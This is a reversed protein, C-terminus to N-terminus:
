DEEGDPGTLRPEIIRRSQGLLAAISTGVLGSIFFGRAIPGLVAALYDRLAAGASSEFLARLEQPMLNQLLLGGPIGLIAGGVLVIVSPIMLYKGARSLRSVLSTGGLAGLGAILLASAAVMSWTIRDLGRQTLTGAAEISGAVRLARSKTAGLDVLAASSSTADDPITAVLEALAAQANKASVPDGPSAASSAQPEGVSRAGLAAGYDRAAQGTRQSLASKLPRLDLSVRGGPSRGEVADLVADVGRSATSRIETWPLDKQAAKALAPGDFVLPRGKGDLSITGKMTAPVDSAQIAEYLRDDTVWRKYTERDLAWPRVSVLCLSSLILPLGCFVFLINALFRRM